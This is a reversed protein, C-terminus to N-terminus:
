ILRHEYAYSAAAARSSIGLKDFINSVHRDVTRKSIFLEAAITKNSAGNAVLRLVQLERPTLGHSDHSASRRGLGAVRDLDPAAGLQQFISRAANFELGASEEDGRERCALGILVRVRAAEYPVELERWVTWAHRLAALAAQSDGEALLVSGQAYASAADLLPAGLAAALEAMEDAAIRAAETDGAALMIEVSAPLLRARNVFGQVEDLARRIAASAADVQGRALWLQALGPQSTRGWHSAQRYAQEAEKFDGRLRHLQAQQYFATGTAPHVPGRLFRECARQAEDMAGPWDGHLQLIETRHVLCQGRFPVLDPQTECWRTLATTWEQARHLDFIERCADIVSCYVVGVVVPSVEGTEVTVMAEDLLSVGEDVKQWRLLARGQGQRALAMLDPDAFREGINAAQEFTALAAEVEGKGFHQLAVPLLLYGQEVCEQQGGDLLRQARALWGGARAHEGNNILGFVLWFACGAARVVEGRSVLDHHVRAWLEISEDDRGLLYATSALRELNEPELPSEQDAASFRAYAEAWARREFSARGQSLAEPPTM